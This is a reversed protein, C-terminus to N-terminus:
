QDLVSADQLLKPDLGETRTIKSDDLTKQIAADVRERRIQMALQPKVEDFAPPKVERTELLKIIHWGFDTQVPQSIENPKLKVVAESFPAVMMDPTFWGLDGKNAASNDTSKAAAQEGFDAGGELEKRIAEAEEKTKVLIHAARYETAPKAETGYVADYKAKLEDETPEPAAVKELAAGAMYARKQIELVAKDGATLKDEITEAVATQSILNDLLTSWMAEDSLGQSAEPLSNRMAIMQALTITQDNVTAVVTDPDAALAAGVPVLLTASTTAALLALRIHRM